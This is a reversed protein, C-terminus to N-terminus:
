KRLELYWWHSCYRDKAFFTNQIRAKSRQASVVIWKEGNVEVLDESVIKSLDDPSKITILEKEVWFVSGVQINQTNLPSVEKGLFSGDPIRKMILEHPQVEEDERRHWWRCKLNYGGHSQYPDYSM